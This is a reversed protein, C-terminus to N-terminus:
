EAAAAEADRSPNASRSVESHAERLWGFFPGVLHHHHQLTNALVLNGQRDLRFHDCAAEIPSQRHREATGQIVRMAAM